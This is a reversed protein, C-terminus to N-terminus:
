RRGGIRNEADIAFQEGSTLRLSPVNGDNVLMSLLISWGLGYGQDRQSSLSSFGWTVALSPGSLNNALLSPLSIALNFQGTRPDVASQVVSLFNNAQSYIGGATAATPPSYKIAEISESM